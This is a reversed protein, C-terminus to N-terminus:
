EAFHRGPDRGRTAGGTAGADPQGSETGASRGGGLGSVWDVYEEDRERVPPAQRESRRLRALWRQHAPAPADPPPETGAPQDATVPESAAQAAAEARRRERRSQRPAPDPAVPESAAQAAAEARRRGRRTQRRPPDAAPAPEDPWYPDDVASRVDRVTHDNDPPSLRDAAPPDPRVPRPVAAPALPETAPERGPSIPPERGPSIPPERGATAPRDDASRWSPTSGRDTLMERETFTERDLFAEPDTRTSGTGLPEPDAYTSRTALPARITIPGPDPRPKRTALSPRWAIAGTTGPQPLVALLVSGLVGAALGIIAGWYPAAQERADGPGALLYAFALLGPGGAGCLAVALPPHEDQWRALAAIVASSLLMLAPIGILALARTSADSLSPLDLVGLRIAPVPDEPGLSPAVSVLALLWGIAGMTSLSWAIVRQSLAAVAAFTGLLAGFTATLGVTLVPNITPAIQAARAPQMSLPAVIGAGLGAVVALGIRGTLTLRLDHRDAMAAGAVAGIVAAFIAFWAVWALQASWQHADDGLFGRAFRVIGLGYAVGLQGAGAVAAVGLATLLVKGWTRLAMRPLNRGPVGAAGDAPRGSSTASARHARIMGHRGVRM